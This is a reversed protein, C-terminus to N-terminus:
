EDEMKVTFEIGEILAKQYEELLKVGFLMFGLSLIPEKELIESQQKDNKIYDM